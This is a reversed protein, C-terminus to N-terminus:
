NWCCRVCCPTTNAIRRHPLYGACVTANISATKAATVKQSKGLIEALRELLIPDCKHNIEARELDAEWQSSAVTVFCKRCFSDIMGDANDRHVFPVDAPM